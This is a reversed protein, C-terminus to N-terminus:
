PQRPLGAPPAQEQKLVPWADPAKQERQYVVAQTVTGTAESVTVRKGDATFEESAQGRTRTWGTLKGSADVHYTDRWDAPTVVAPDVYSEKKAPPLYDISVIRRAEDYTRKENAPFYWTVFAPASYHVGNHAFVGIDVRSGAIDSGPLVGKEHWGVKLEARTGAANLPRIQV